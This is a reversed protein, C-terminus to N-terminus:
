YSAADTSVSYSVWVDAENEDYVYGRANLEGDATTKVLEDLKRFTGQPDAEPPPPKAKWGYKKYLAFDVTADHDTKITAASVPDRVVAALVVADGFRKTKM